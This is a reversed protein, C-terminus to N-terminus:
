VSQRLSPSKFGLYGGNYGCIASIEHSEPANEILL